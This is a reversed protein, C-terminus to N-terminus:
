SKLLCYAGRSAGYKLEYGSPCILVGGASIPDVITPRNFSSANQGRAYDSLDALGGGLADGARQTVNGVAVLARKVLVVVVAGIAVLALAQWVAPPVKNLAPALKNM